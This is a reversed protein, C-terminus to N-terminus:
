HDFLDVLLLHPVLGVGVAQDVMDPLSWPLLLGQALIAVTFYSSSCSSSSSSVAAAAAAAAAAAPRQSPM